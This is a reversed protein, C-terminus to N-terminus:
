KVERTELWRMAREVWDEAWDANIPLDGLNDVANALLSELENVNACRTLTYVPQGALQLLVELWARDSLQIGQIIEISNLALSFALGELHPTPKVALLGTTSNVLGWCARVDCGPEQHFKENFNFVMWDTSVDVWPEPLKVLYFPTNKLFPDKFKHEKKMTLQQISKPTEM